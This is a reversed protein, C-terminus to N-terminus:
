SHLAKDYISHRLDDTPSDTETRLVADILNLLETHEDDTLAILHARENEPPPNYAPLWKAPKPAPPKPPKTCSCTADFERHVQGSGHCKPCDPRPLRRQESM